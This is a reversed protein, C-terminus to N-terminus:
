SQSHLPNSRAASVGSPLLLTLRLRFLGCAHDEMVTGLCDNLPPNGRINGGVRFDLLFHLIEEELVADFGHRHAISVHTARMFLALVKRVALVALKTWKPLPFLPAIPPISRLLFM